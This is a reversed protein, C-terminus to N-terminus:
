ASDSRPPGWGRRANHKEALSAGMRPDWEPGKAYM